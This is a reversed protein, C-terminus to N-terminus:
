DNVFLKPHLRQTDNIADKDSWCGPDITEMWGKIVPHIVARMRISGRANAYAERAADAMKEQEKMAVQLERITWKVLNERWNKVFPHDSHKIWYEVTPPWGFVEPDGYACLDKQISDPM